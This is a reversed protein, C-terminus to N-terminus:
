GTKWREALGSAGEGSLGDVGVRRGTCLLLLAGVPGRVELGAGVAWEVDDAVLRLGALRRRARFPFSRSWVTEAAARAADVPMPLVRDVALAVDQGHVLVDALVNGVTGGPPVKRSGAGARLDAAIDRGPRAAARVASDHIMRDFNGRARALDAVASVLPVRAGLVLHAAVDRVRWGACLSPRDWEDGSLGDLLGALALRQERVHEWM